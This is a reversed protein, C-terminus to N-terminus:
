GGFIARFFPSKNFLTIIQIAVPIVVAAAAVWGRVKNMLSEEVLLDTEPIEMLNPIERLPFLTNHEVSKDSLFFLAFKGFTNNKQNISAAAIKSYARKLDKIQLKTKRRLYSNYSNLGMVFFKMEDAENKSDQMLVFCGRAYYLWFETRAFACIIKFMGSIVIFFLLLKAFNFTPMHPDIILAIQVLPGTTNLTNVTTVKHSTDPLWFDHILGFVTFVILLPVVIYLVQRVLRFESVARIFGRKEFYWKIPAPAPYPPYLLVILIFAIIEFSNLFGVITPLHPISSRLHHSIDFFLYPKLIEHVVYAYIVVALPLIFLSIASVVKGSAIWFDSLFELIVIKKNSSKM